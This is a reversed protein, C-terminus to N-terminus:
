SPKERAHIWRSLGFRQLHKPVDFELERGGQGDSTIKLLEFVLMVQIKDEAMEGTYMAGLFKMSLSSQSTDGKFPVIPNRGLETPLSLNVQRLWSKISEKDKENLKFGKETLDPWIHKM